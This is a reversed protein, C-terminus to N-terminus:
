SRLGPHRCARRRARNRARTSSIGTRSGSVCRPGAVARVRVPVAESVPWWAPGFPAFSLTDIWSGSDPSHVALSAAGSLGAPGFRHPYAGRDCVGSRLRGSYRALRALRWQALGQGASRKVTLSANGTGTSGFIFTSDRASVMDTAAPYVVSLALPGEVLPVPPLPTPEPVISRAPPSERPGAHTRGAPRRRPWLWGGRLDSSRLPGNCTTCPVCGDISVASVGNVSKWGDTSEWSAGWAFPSKGSAV